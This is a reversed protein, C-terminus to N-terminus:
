AADKGVFFKGLLIKLHLKMHELKCTFYLDLDGLIM